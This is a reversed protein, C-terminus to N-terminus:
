RRHLQLMSERRTRLKQIVAFWVEKPKLPAEAIFLITEKVARKSIGLLVIISSRANASHIRCKLHWLDFSSPRPRLRLWFPYRWCLYASGSRRRLNFGYVKAFRVIEMESDAMVFVVMAYEFITQKDSKCRRHAIIRWRWSPLFVGVSSPDHELTCITASNINRAIIEQVNLVGQGYSSCYLEIPLSSAPYILYPHGNGPRGSRLGRRLLVKKKDRM